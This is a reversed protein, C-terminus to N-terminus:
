ASSSTGVLLSALLIKVFFPWGKFIDDIEAEQGRAKKLFFMAVGINLWLQFVLSALPGIGPIMGAVTTAATNIAPSAVVGLCIGWDPKMIAWTRGFVEGLVLPTPTIPSPPAAVAGPGFPSATRFPSGFDIPGSPPPMPGSPPLTPGVAGGGGTTPAAPPTAGGTGSDGDGRRM